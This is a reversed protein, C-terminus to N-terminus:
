ARLFREGDRKAERDSIHPSQARYYCIPRILFRPFRSRPFGSPGEWFSHAFVIIVRPGRCGRSFSLLFSPLPLVPPHRLSRRPASFLRPPLSPPHTSPSNSLDEYLCVCSHRLSLPIPLLCRAMGARGERKEAAREYYVGDDDVRLRGRGRTALPISLTRASLWHAAIMKGCSHAPPTPPEQSSVSSKSYKRGEEREKGGHDVKVNEKKREKEKAANRPYMQLFLGDWSVRTNKEM